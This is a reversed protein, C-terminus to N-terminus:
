ALEHALRRVEGVPGIGVALRLPIQGAQSGQKQGMGHRMYRLTQGSIPMNQVERTSPRVLGPEESLEERVWGALGVEGSDVDPCGFEILRRSAPSRLIARAQFRVKESQIGGLQRQQALDRLRGMEGKESMLIKPITGLEPGREEVIRQVLKMGFSQEDNSGVKVFLM